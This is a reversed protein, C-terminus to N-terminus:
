AAKIGYLTIMSGSAFAGSTTFIDIRNIASTNAWSGALQETSGSAVNSRLLATKYFSTNAYGNIQITAINDYTSSMGQWFVWGANQIRRQSNATSGNAAMETLGYNNTNTDNNINIFIANGNVTAAGVFVVILDTYTNPISSLTLTATSSNSLTQTQIPEYTAAVNRSFNVGM